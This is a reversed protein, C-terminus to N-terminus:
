FPGGGGNTCNVCEPDNANAPDACKLPCYTVTQFVKNSEENTSRAARTAKLQLVNKWAVNLQEHEPAAGQPSSHASESQTRLLTGL